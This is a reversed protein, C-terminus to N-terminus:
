QSPLRRKRIRIGLVLTRVAGRRTYRCFLWSKLHEALFRGAQDAYPSRRLMRWWAIWTFNWPYCFWPKQWREAYHRIVLGDRQLRPFMVNCCGPLSLMRHGLLVNIITQDHQVLDAAHKCAFDLATATFNENRLRELDMVLVGANYYRTRRDTIGFAALSLAGRSESIEPPMPVAAMPSDGLPMEMLSRLSGYVLVDPDLYLVRSCDPLLSPLILRYYTERTITESAPLGQFAEPGVIHFSVTCREGCLPVLAQLRARSEESFDSGLVHIDFTDEPASLLMSTAAVALHRVFSDSVTFAVSVTPQRGKRDM